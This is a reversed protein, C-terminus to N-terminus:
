DARILFELQLFRQDFIEECLSCISLTVAIRDIKFFSDLLQYREPIAYAFEHAPAQKIISRAAIATARSRDSFLSKLLIFVCSFSHLFLEIKEFNDFSDPDKAHERISKKRLTLSEENTKGFFKEHAIMKVKMKCQRVSVKLVSM